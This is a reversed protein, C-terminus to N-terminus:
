IAALEHVLPPGGYIFGTYIQILGAGAELRMKANEASSIGGVGILPITGGSRDNIYQLIEQSRHTLPQGSLGGAGIKSVAEEPTTLGERSITTNTAILGDLDSEMAIEIVDDLQGETLDPAIKLLLPRYPLENFEKEKEKRLKSLANIINLLPEKDQLARLNPTNPSSVNIVFYDVLPYLKEYCATYDNVAEENPTIKNKGINGGIVPRPDNTRINRRYDELKNVIADVGDNNFGMRNILAKDSPLRFLRPKPNGIQGKPTVTGVEIHGFGLLALDRIHGGNKDFGAAIGLKNPFKLGCFETEVTETRKSIFIKKLLPVRLFVHLVNLTFKHATEPDLVFLINRVLNYVM